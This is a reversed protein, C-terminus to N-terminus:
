QEMMRCAVLTIEGTKSSKYQLLKDTCRELDFVWEPEFKDIFSMTLRLRDVDDFKWTFNHSVNDLNLIGTKDKKITFVKSAENSVESWTGIARQQITDISMVSNGVFKVTSFAKYNKQLENGLKKIISTDRVSIHTKETIYEKQLATQDRINQNIGATDFPFYRKSALITLSDIFGTTINKLQTYTDIRLNIIAAVLKDIDKDDGLKKLNEVTMEQLHIMDKFYSTGIGQNYICTLEATNDEYIKEYRMLNDWATRSNRGRIKIPDNFIYNSVFLGIMSVIIGPLVLKIPTIFHESKLAM